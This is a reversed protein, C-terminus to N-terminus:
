CRVSRFRHMTCVIRSGRKSERGMGRKGARSLMTTVPMNNLPVNDFTRIKILNAIDPCSHLFPKIDSIHVKLFFSFYESDSKLNGLRHSALGLPPSALSIKPWNERFVVHFHFSIRSPPPPPEDKARGM